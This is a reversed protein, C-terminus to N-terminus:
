TGAAASQLRELPVSGILARGDDTILVNLLATHLLRGGAVARTAQSLLPSAVLGVPVDAAAIEVVTEWGTGSLAPPVASPPTAAGDPESSHAPGSVAPHSGIAQEEVRAGAPPTFEFREASPRDLSLSTFALAFAPDRQDRAQVDVSLPLGSAADVAISVSGILTSSSRPRLTLTYADRGAVTTARDVTVETTPDIAAVMRKAVEPPTPITDVKVRTPVSGVEAQTPAQPLVLHTATNAQSDYLWVDSGHRVVDREALQDLVQIRADTPGDVYVRATHSGTVLELAAASANAQATGRGSGRSLGAPLAPLGLKSTQEISGSFAQVTSEGIMALVQEATKAPLDPAAGAQAASILTGAAIVAPVLLAPLWRNWARTVVVARAV